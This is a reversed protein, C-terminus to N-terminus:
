HSHGEPAGGFAAIEAIRLFGTGNTVIEDGKKLEASSITINTKDRKIEKFDIRKYFGDRFRYVNVEIGASVIASKPIQCIVQGDYKIKKIEFNLEAKSSLRIGKEESAEQIGKEPGVQPNEEEHEHEHETGSAHQEEAYSIKTCCIFISLILLYTIKM